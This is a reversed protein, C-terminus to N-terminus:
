GHFFRIIIKYLVWSWFTFSIIIIPYVIWNEHKITGWKDEAMKIDWVANKTNKVVIAHVLIM